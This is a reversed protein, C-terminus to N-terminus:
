KPMPTITQSTSVDWEFYCGWGYARPNWIWRVEVTRPPGKMASAIKQCPAVNPKSCSLTGPKFVGTFNLVLLVILVIAIIFAWLKFILGLM